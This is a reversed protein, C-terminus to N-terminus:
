RRQCASSGTYAEEAMGVLEDASVLDIPKDEVFSLVGPTFGVPCALIARHAHSDMLTGYLERAARVGVPKDHGKCQVITSTGDRELILDVGGDRTAPTVQVEYGLKEYLHALEQEFAVGRLSKWHQELTQRYNDYEVMAQEYQEVARNYEQLKKFIPDQHWAEQKRQWAEQREKRAARSHNIVIMV